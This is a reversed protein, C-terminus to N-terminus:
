RRSSQASLAYGSLAPPPSRSFHHIPSHIPTLSPTSHAPPHNVTHSLHPHPPPCMPGSRTLSSHPSSLTTPPDKPFFRLSLSLGRPRRSRPDQTSRILIPHHIKSLQTKNLTQKFVVQDLGIERRREGGIVCGM